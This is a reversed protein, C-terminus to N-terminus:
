LNSHIFVDQDNLFNFVQKQNMRLIVVAYDTDRREIETVLGLNVLCNGQELASIHIKLLNMDCM